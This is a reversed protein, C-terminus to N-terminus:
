RLDTQAFDDGKYLLRVGAQRACAYAFCDGMNLKAPHSGRGYEQHATLAGRTERLTIPHVEMYAARIFDEVENLASSLGQGRKRSVALAAEYIAIPSTFPASAQKLRQALDQWDPEVTIIAVMAPADVFM